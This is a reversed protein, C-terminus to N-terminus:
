GEFQISLSEPRSSSVIFRRTASSDNSNVVFGKYNAFCEEISPYEVDYFFEIDCNQFTFWKNDKQKQKITKKDPIAFDNVIIKCYYNWVEDNRSYLTVIFQEGDYQTAVKYADRNWKEGWIGGVRVCTSVKLRHTGEADYTKSMVPLVNLVCALVIAFLNTLRM